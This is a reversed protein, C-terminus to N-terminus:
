KQITREVIINQMLELWKGNIFRDPLQHIVNIMTTQRRFNYIKCNVRNIILLIDRYEEFAILYNNFQLCWRLPAHGIIMVIPPSVNTMAVYYHQM